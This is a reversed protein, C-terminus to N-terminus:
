PVGKSPNTNAIMTRFLERSKLPRDGLYFALIGRLLDRAQRQQPPSLPQGGALALLTDGHVAGTVAQTVPELGSEQRYRYLGDPRLPRGSSERSLDPAYGLEELLALEFRRLTEELSGDRELKGLTARYNEFLLPVPENRPLLRTLLENVYFGSYLSPGKLAHAGSAAEVGALTKLSGRGRWNLLLPVFPQLVGRRRSNRAGAGRAVLPIRGEALSLVELLLSNDGYRRHHLVYAPTLETM